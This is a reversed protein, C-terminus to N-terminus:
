FRYNMGVRVAHLDFNENSRQIDTGATNPPLVFPNTAPATGRGVRITYDDPELSTYLYEGVLTLNSTMKYELGAGAQYGDAGDEDTQETFTNAGNSTRFSNDIKGYAAGGTVYGLVPGMAYGLRARLAAVSKLERTFTYSAPTTSYSTVSDEAKMGSWEGVAGVVFNGFQFDYGARVGVEAGSNDDRCGAAPTAGLASGNCSGPSFANNTTGNLIVTDDFDGDFDRDFVLNEDDEQGSFLGGVHVGIYPGSWDASQAFAPLALSSTLLALAVAPLTKKM